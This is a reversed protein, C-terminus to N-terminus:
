ATVAVAEAEVVAEVKVKRSRPKPGAEVVAEAKATAEDVMLAIATDLAQRDREMIPKGAIM